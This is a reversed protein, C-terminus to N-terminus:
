ADRGSSCCLPTEGERKGKEPINRGDYIPKDDNTEVNSATLPVIDIL